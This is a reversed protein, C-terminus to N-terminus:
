RVPITQLLEGSSSYVQVTPKSFQNSGFAVVRHPDRVMATQVDSPFGTLVAERVLHVEM